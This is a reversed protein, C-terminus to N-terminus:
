PRGRGRQRRTQLVRVLAPAVATAIPVLVWIRGATLDYDALLVAWPRNLLFHGVGFEFALTLLAWAAGVGVATRTDPLPRWRHLLWTYGLLAGILLQTSAQHAALDGLRDAYGLDRVTGNVVAVASLGVWGAVWAAWTRALEVGRRRVRIAM